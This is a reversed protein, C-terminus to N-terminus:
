WSWDVLRYLFRTERGEGFNQVRGSLFLVSEERMPLPKWLGRSKREPSELPFVCYNQTPEVVALDSDPVRVCAFATHVRTRTCSAPRQRSDSSIHESAFTSTFRQVHVVIRPTSLALRDIHLHSPVASPDSFCEGNSRDDCVARACSVRSTIEGHYLLQHHM